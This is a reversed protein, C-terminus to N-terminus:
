PVSAAQWTPPRSVREGAKSGFAAPITMSRQPLTLHEALGDGFTSWRSVTPTDDRAATPAYPTARSVEGPTDGEVPLSPLELPSAKGSSIRSAQLKTMANNQDVKESAAFTPRAAVEHDSAADNLEAGCTRYRCIPRRTLEFTAEPFKEEM